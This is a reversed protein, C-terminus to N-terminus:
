VARKASRKHDKSSGLLGHWAEQVFAQPDARMEWDQSRSQSWSSGRTANKSRTTLAPAALLRNESLDQYRSAMHQQMNSSHPRADKDALSELWAVRRSPKKPRLICRKGCWGCRLKEKSAHCCPVVDFFPLSSSRERIALRQAGLSIHSAGNSMRTFGILPWEM